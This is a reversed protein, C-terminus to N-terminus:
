KNVALHLLVNPISDPAIASKWIVALEACSIPFTPGCCALYPWFIFYIMIYLIYNLINISSIRFHKMIWLSFRYIKIVNLLENKLIFLYVFSNFPLNKNEMLPHKLINQHSHVHILYCTKSCDKNTTM